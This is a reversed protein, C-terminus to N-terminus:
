LSGTGRVSNACLKAKSGNARDASRSPLYPAVLAPGKTMAGVGLVIGIALTCSLILWGKM